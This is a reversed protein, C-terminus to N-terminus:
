FSGGNINPDLIIAAAIGIIGLGVVIIVPWPNFKIQETVTGSLNLERIKQKILSKSENVHVADVRVQYFDRIDHGISYRSKLGMDIQGKIVEGEIGSFNLKELVLECDERTSSDYIGIKDQNAM